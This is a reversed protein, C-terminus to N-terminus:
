KLEIDISRPGDAKDLATVKADDFSPAGFPRRANNTFGYPETPKGLVSRNLVGDGNIDHHIAIAFPQGKAFHETAVEMRVAGEKQRTANISQTHNASERRPFGEAQFFIAANIAGDTSQVGTVRLQVAAIPQAGETSSSPDSGTSSPSTRQLVYAVALIIVVSVVARPIGSQSKSPESM